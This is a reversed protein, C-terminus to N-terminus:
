EYTRMPAVCLLSIHILTQSYNGGCLYFKIEFQLYATGLVLSCNIPMASYKILSILLGFGNVAGFGLHFCFTKSLLFGFSLSLIVFDSQM